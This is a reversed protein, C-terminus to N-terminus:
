FLRAAPAPWYRWLALALGSCLLALALWGGIPAEGRPLFPSFPALALPAARALAAIALGAVLMPQFAALGGLGLTGPTHTWLRVLAEAALVNLLPLLLVLLTAAGPGPGLGALRLGLLVAGAGLAYGAVLVVLQIAVNVAEM